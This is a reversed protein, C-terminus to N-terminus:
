KSKSIDYEGNLKSKYIDEKSFVAELRAIHQMNDFIIKGSLQDGIRADYDAPFQIIVVDKKSKIEEYLEQSRVKILVSDSWSPFPGHASTPMLYYGDIIFQVQRSDDRFLVRKKTVVYPNFHTLIAFAVFLVMVLIAASCILLKKKTTM